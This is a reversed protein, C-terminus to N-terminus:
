SYHKQSQEKFRQVHDDVLLTGFNVEVTHVMCPFTLILASKFYQSLMKIQLPWHKHNNLIKRTPLHNTQLMLCALRNIVSYCTLPSMFEHTLTVRLICSSQVGMFLSAKVTNFYEDVSSYEMIQFFLVKGGDTVNYTYAVVFLLLVPVIWHNSSHYFVWAEWLTAYPEIRCMRM